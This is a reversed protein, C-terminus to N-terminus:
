GRQALLQLMLTVTEWQKDNTEHIWVMCTQPLCKKGATPVVVACQQLGSIPLMQPAITHYSCYRGSSSHGEVHVPNYPIFRHARVVYFSRKMQGPKRVESHGRCHIIEKFYMM